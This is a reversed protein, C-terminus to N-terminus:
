NFQTDTEEPHIHTTPSFIAVITRGYPKSFLCNPHPIFDNHRDHELILWGDDKVWGDDLITDVMGHMEEYDYPPDCFVFDYPTPPSELFRDVTSCRTRIQDSVNFKGATKEIHQINRKDHDVFLVSEAGRSIAEFGLNGSGAFLDLVRSGQIFKRADIVSFIGEKTRDSTPRVNLTKPLHIRRGKLIGTIIRM